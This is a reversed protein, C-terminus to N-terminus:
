ERFSPPPLEKLIQELREISPPKAVHLDFGAEKAKAIDEPGAYGTLAVLTIGDLAPDARIARAVQYGDMDPLGIDCLIVEPRFSRAKEVGEHGRYAVEVTHADLELVERLSEAADVNDEIILVRRSSAVVPSRGERAEDDSTARTLPLRAIFETGRGPGASSACVCGGHLEVLGKVLALGLGLGGKGRDLTKDAQVFPEFLEGVLKPDLGIGTDRVAIVAQRAADDIHVALTTKGGTPTFKASNQLLNGIVQAIRTRDAEIWVKGPALQVDFDIGADLFLTRHDEATRWALENLEILERHLLVKGRTIRTVDLLDDILRTMHTIQREIVARARRAQEGGPATRDLVLLSNRIPTLPNRLEHSLVALFENKRRDTEVLVDEVRKRAAIDRVIGEVAVIVGRPDRIPTLKFETWVYAGDQRQLRVPFPEQTPVRLASRLAPWDEPHVRRVGAEIDAYLEQPTLGILGTIAPCVYEVAWRPELRLRFVVDPSNEALLRFRSEGQRLQNEVHRRQMAVAAQRTFAEILRARELTPAPSIISATGLFDGKRTFPQAYTSRVGARREIEQCLELTLEHFALEYLGGEIHVLRGEALRQRAEESMPLAIGILEPGFVTHAEAVMEPPGVISRVVTSDTSPEYSNVIIGSGPALKGLEEAVLQFIDEDPEIEALRLAANSLFELDDMEARTITDDNGREHRQM